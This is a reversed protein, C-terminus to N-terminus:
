FALHQSSILIIEANVVFHNVLVKWKLFDVINNGKSDNEAGDGLTIFGQPKNVGHPLRNIMFEFIINGPGLGIHVLRQVGRDDPRRTLAAFNLYSGPFHVTNGFGTNGSVPTIFLAFPNIFIDAFFKGPDPIKDFILFIKPVRTLEQFINADVQELIFNIHKGGATLDFGQGPTRRRNIKSVDDVGFHSILTGPGFHVTLKNRQSIFQPGAINNFDRGGLVM